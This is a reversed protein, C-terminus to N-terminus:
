RSQHINAREGHRDCHLEFSAVRWTCVRSDERSDAQRHHVDRQCSRSRITQALNRCLLHPTAPARKHQPLRNETDSADAWVTNEVRVCSLRSLRPVNRTSGELDVLTPSSSRPKTSSSYSM